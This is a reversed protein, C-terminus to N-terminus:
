EKGLQCIQFLFINEKWDKRLELEKAKSLTYGKTKIFDLLGAIRAEFTYVGNKISSNHRVLLTFRKDILKRYFKPTEQYFATDKSIIDQIKKAMRAEYTNVQQQM